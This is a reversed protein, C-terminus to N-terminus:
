WGTTKDKSSLYSLCISVPKVSQIVIPYIDFQQKTFDKNAINYIDEKQILITLKETLEKLTDCEIICANSNPPVSHSDSIYYKSNHLFFGRSFADCTIIACHYVTFFTALSEELSDIE